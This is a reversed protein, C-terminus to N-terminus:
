PACSNTLECTQLLIQWTLQGDYRWELNKTGPNVRLEVQAGATGPDGQAGPSPPNVQLYTSVASALEDPTVSVGSTGQVGQTGQPGQVSIGPQGQLGTSGVTGAPGSAGKEIIVRPYSNGKPNHLAIGISVFNLLILLVIAVWVKKPISNM